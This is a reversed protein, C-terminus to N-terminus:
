TCLFNKSRFIGPLGPIKNICFLLFIKSSAKARHSRPPKVSLFPVSRHFGPVANGSRGDRAFPFGRASVSAHDQKRYLSKRLRRPFELGPRAHSLWPSDAAINKDRELNLFFLSSLFVFSDAISLLLSIGNTTTPSGYGEDTLGVRWSTAECSQSIDDILLRSFDGQRSTPVQRSYRPM